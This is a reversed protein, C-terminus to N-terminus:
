KVSSRRNLSTNSDAHRMPSLIVLTIGSRLRSSKQYQSNSTRVPIRSQPRPASRTTYRSTSVPIRSRRVCSDRNEENETLPWYRTAEPNRIPSVPFDPMHFEDGYFSSTMGIQERDPPVPCPRCMSHPCVPAPPEYGPPCCKPDHQVEQCDAYAEEQCAEYAEEQNDTRPVSRSRKDEATPEDFDGQYRPQSHSRKTYTLNLDQAAPQRRCPIHFVDRRSRRATPRAASQQHRTAHASCQTVSNLVQDLNPDDVDIYSSYGRFRPLTVTSPDKDFPALLQGRKLVHYLLLLHTRMSYLDLRTIKSLWRSIQTLEGESFKALHPETTELFFLLITEKAVKEINQAMRAPECRWKRAPLRSLLTSSVFLFEMSPIYTSKSPM